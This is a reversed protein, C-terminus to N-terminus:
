TKGVSYQGLGVTDSISIFTSDCDVKCTRTTFTM